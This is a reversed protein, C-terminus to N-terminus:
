STAFVLLEHRSRTDGLFALEELVVAMTMNEGIPRPWDQAPDFYGTTKLYQDLLKGCFTRTTPLSVVILELLKPAVRKIARQPQHGRADGERSGPSYRVEASCQAATTSGVASQGGDRQSGHQWSERCCM